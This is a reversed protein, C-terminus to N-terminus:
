NLLTWSLSVGARARSNQPTKKVRVQHDGTQSDTAKYVTGYTGSGIEQFGYYQLVCVRIVNTLHMDSGPDRGADHTADTRHKLAHEVHEVLV